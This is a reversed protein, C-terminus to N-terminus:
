FHLLTCCIGATHHLFGISCPVMRSRHAVGFISRFSLAILAPPFLHLFGISYPVIRSHHAVRFICRFSLAILAPPFLHLFGISCPVIRSRHAVRFICRFSLTILPPPFLHWTLSVCYEANQTVSKGKVPFLTCSVFQLWRLPGLLVGRM